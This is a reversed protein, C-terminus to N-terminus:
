FTLIHNIGDYWYTPFLSPSLIRKLRPFVSLLVLAQLHLFYLDYKVVTIYLIFKVQKLYEIELQLCKHHKNLWLFQQVWWRSLLYFVTSQLM